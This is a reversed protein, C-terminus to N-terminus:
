RGLTALSSRARRCPELIWRFIAKGPSLRRELGLASMEASTRPRTSIRSVRRGGSDVWFPAPASRGLYEANTARYITGTHGESEDAYTVVVDYRRSARIWRLSRGILMSAANTPEDPAVVCRSLSVVRAPTSIAHKVASGRPPPLFIVAGVLVGERWAGFARGTNSASKTYHHAIVLARADALPAPGFVYDRARAGGDPPYM